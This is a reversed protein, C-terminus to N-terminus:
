TAVVVVGSLVSTVDREVLEALESPLAALMENFFGQIMLRQADERSVGRSELYWRQLEDLPGVSSAHACMVDNERIDLNPVSDAHASKSLLLNHNTQRADTRKAGKEIEILGTYISRSEDAVAGKSLLTSTTRAGVHFQRTRFDHVQDGSGLFTTRLENSAGPGFLEADNRSRDYHGGLGIVAQQLRADRGLRGTTRAVHWASADLRQYTVLRLSADDDVRYESVPVVLADRGGEFYEVVTVSAGRGVVIQTRSFSAASSSENLVVIPDRVETRAEVRIVTTSPALAINLLAFSDGAYRVILSEDHLSPAADAFEVSVGAPLDSVSTGFGDAVRVVLGARECLQTAFPSDADHRPSSAVLFHDLDLDRLPAYRWVEDSTTPLGLVEFREWASRREGADPRESIYTTASDAFSTM